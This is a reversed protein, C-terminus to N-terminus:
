RIKTVSTVETREGIRKVSVKVSSVDSLVRLRVISFSSGVCRVTVRSNMPTGSPPSTEPTPMQSGTCWRSGALSSEQVLRALELPVHEEVLREVTAGQPPLAILTVPPGLECVVDGVGSTRASEASAAVLCGSLRSVGDAVRCAAAAGVLITTTLLSAQLGRSYRAVPGQAREAV